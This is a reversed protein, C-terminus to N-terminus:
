GKLALKAFHDFVNLCRITKTHKILKSVSQTIKMSKSQEYFQILLIATPEINDDLDNDLNLNPVIKSFFTDFM